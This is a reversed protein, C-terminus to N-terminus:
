AILLEYGILRIEAGDPHGWSHEGEVCPAIPKGALNLGSGRGLARSLNKGFITTILKKTKKDLLSLISIFYYCL